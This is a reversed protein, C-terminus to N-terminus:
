KAATKLIKRVVQELAEALIQVNDDHLPNYGTRRSGRSTHAGIICDERDITYADLRSIL